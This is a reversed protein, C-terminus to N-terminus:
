ANSIMISSNNLHNDNAKTYWLTLSNCNFPLIWFQELILVGEDFKNIKTDNQQFLFKRRMLTSM